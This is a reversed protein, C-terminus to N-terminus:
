RRVRRRRKRTSDVLLHTIPSHAISTVQQQCSLLELKTSEKIKNLEEAGRKWEECEESSISLKEELNRIYQKLEENEAKNKAVDYLL